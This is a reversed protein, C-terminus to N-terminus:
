DFCGAAAGAMAGGVAGVATWTVGVPGLAFAVGNGSAGAAGLLAGGGVSLACKWFGGGDILEMENLELSKM